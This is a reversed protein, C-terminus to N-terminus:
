DDGRATPKSPPNYDAWRFPLAGLGCERELQCIIAEGGDRLALATRLMVQACRLRVRGWLAERLTM